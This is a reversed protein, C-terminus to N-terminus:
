ARSAGAVRLRALRPVRAEVVHKGACDRLREVGGVDLRDDAPRDRVVYLEADAGAAV